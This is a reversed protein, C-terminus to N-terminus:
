QESRLHGLKAAINEATDGVEINVCATNVGCEGGPVPQVALCLVVVAGVFWAFRKM